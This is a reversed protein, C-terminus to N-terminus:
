PRVGPSHAGSSSPADVAAGPSARRPAAPPDLVPAWEPHEALHARLAARFERRAALARWREVGARRLLPEGQLWPALLAYDPEGLVAGPPVEGAFRGALPPLTDRFAAPLAALWEAPPRPRAVPRGSAGPRLVLHDGAHVPVEPLRLAPQRPQWQPMGSEVFLSLAPGQPELRAITVAAAPRWALLPTMLTARAQRTAFKFWGSLVYWDAGGALRPASWLRAGPGLELVSGDAQEIRVLAAPAEPLHVLDAAQLRMGPVLRLVAEARILRPEGEAVTVLGVSPPAAARAVGGILALGLLM